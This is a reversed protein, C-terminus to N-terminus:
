RAPLVIRFTTGSPVTDEVELTGDHATVIAHIIALGLGAGGRDRSRSPDARYFRNFILDRGERPLGPGYDIVELVVSADRKELTLHVRTGPPTHTRVNALLNDLVQRMRIADGTMLVSGDPAFEIPRDPEVAQAADVAEYVVNTLNVEQSELPRGQDLRALLLLDDVLVGMRASEEEIRSMVKALDAPRTDAGRRFLEAYGRISTLPTRLEHSADALFRRLRQESADKEAFASEIQGLMTNLAIGLRGVETKRDARKVRQGLDGEAIAGATAEIERLPRLGLRVLYLGAAAALLLVAVTVLAEITVLQSLTDAVDAMPLAILMLLPSGATTPVAWVHVRYGPGGKEKSPVVLTAPTDCLQTGCTSPVQIKAPLDPTSKATQGFGAGNNSYLIANSSDRVQTYNSTNDPLSGPPGGHGDHRFLQTAVPDRLGDIQADVRKVLFSQLAQYTALDAVLLGTAVVLLLALLIRGRLSM